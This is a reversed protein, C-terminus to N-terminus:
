DNDFGGPGVEAAHSVRDPDILQRGTLMELDAWARGEDAQLAVLEMRYRNVTVQGDVLAMFDVRGVRYAAHTATLAAEAQPLVTTAYLRSLNRARALAAHGAGVRGRPDARLYQLDAAAMARMAAAEDRMRFQRRGAFIPVSAGLMLSGMRETGMEASRQGYQIGVMLDPVLERRALDVMADAAAVDDEGARIMPRSAAAIQALSDVRPVDAPFAPLLTMPMTADVARDLLANLRAVAAARMAEMRTIEETMRAVEVQARLVDAQRGEGVQYMTSAIREIDQVLRRTEVSIGVSQEAEYVEYYAMATRSRLEWDVEVAREREASARAEAIRGSLGLKGPTPVMQTLQLQAMGTPDMPRLNWLGYNMFSLQVQPDPPLKAASIRAGAADALARAAAVRPNRELVERYVDGLRISEGPAIAPEQGTADRSSVSMAATVVALHLTLHCAARARRVGSHFM